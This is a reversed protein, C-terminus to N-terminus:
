RRGARVMRCVIASATGVSTTDPPTGVSRWVTESPRAVDELVCRRPVPRRGDAAERRHPVCPGSVLPARTHRWQQLDLHVAAEIREDPVVHHGCEVCAVGLPGAAGCEVNRLGSEIQLQLVPRRGVDVEAPELDPGLRSDDIRAAVLGIRPQHRTVDGGQIV